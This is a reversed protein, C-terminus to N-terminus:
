LGRAPAQRHAGTGAHLLQQNVANARLFSDRFPENVHEREIRRVWAV